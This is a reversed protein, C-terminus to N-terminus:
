RRRYKEKEEPDDTLYREHTPLFKFSGQAKIIAAGENFTRESIDLGFSNRAISRIEQNTLRKELYNKIYLIEFLAIFITKSGKTKYLWSQGDSSLFEEAALAEVAEHYAAPSWFIDQFYYNRTHDAAKYIVLLNPYELFLGPHFCILDQAKRILGNNYGYQYFDEENLNITAGEDHDRRALELLVWIAVTVREDTNQYPKIRDELRGLFDEYGIRDGQEFSKKLTECKRHLYIAEAKYEEPVNAMFDYAFLRAITRDYVELRERNENIFSTVEYFSIGILKYEYNVDRAVRNLVLLTVDIESLLKEVIENRLEM